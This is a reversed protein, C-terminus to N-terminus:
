RSVKPLSAGGVVRRPGATWYGGFATVDGVGSSHWRLMRTRPDRQSRVAGGSAMTVVAVAIPGRFRRAM